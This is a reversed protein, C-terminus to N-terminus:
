VIDFVAQVGVQDRYPSITGNQTNTALTAHISDSNVFAHLYGVDLGFAKMPQIHAGIALYVMAPLTPTIVVRYNPNSPDTAYSIGGRLMVKPNVIYNTGLALRWTNRLRLNGRASIQTPTGGVSLAINKITLATFRSWEEYGITGMVALKDNIGRYASLTTIPATVWNNYKFNNSIIETGVNSGPRVVFESEGNAQFKVMSRYAIGFRTTDDLQYLLGTHLGLNWGAATNYVQSDQTGPVPSARVMSTNYVSLREIDLAIGAGLQDTIKYALAPSLDFVMNQASVAMYRIVSTSNFGVGAGNPVSFGIGFNLKCTIPQTYYAAPMPIYKTNGTATGTTTGGFPVNVNTGKFDAHVRAISGGLTLESNKIRVLGAPNIAMTSADQALAAGGSFAQGLDAPTDAGISSYAAYLPSSLTLLTTVSLIPLIRNQRFLM